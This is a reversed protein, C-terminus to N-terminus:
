KAAKSIVAFFIYVSGLYMLEVVHESDVESFVDKVVQHVSDLSGDKAWYSERLIEVFEAVAAALRFTAPAADFSKHLQSVLFDESVESVKHSDAHAYRFRNLCDLGTHM